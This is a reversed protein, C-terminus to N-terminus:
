FKINASILVFKVCLKVTRPRWSHSKTRYKTTDSNAGILVKFMHHTVYMNKWRLIAVINLVNRAKSALSLNIIGLKGLVEVGRYCMLCLSSALFVQRIIASVVDMLEECDFEEFSLSFPSPVMDKGSTQVFEM